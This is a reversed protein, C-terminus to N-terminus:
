PERFVRLRIFRVTEVPNGPLPRAIVTQGAGDDAVVTEEVVAPGSFWQVLDSSVEAVATLGSGPIRRYILGPRTDAGPAVGFVGFAGEAQMPQRGGFYELLNPVGDQDPDAEDGSIAPDLLQTASFHGFKWADVPRDAIRLTLRAPTATVFNAGPQLAVTVTEDGEVASDALPTLDFSVSTENAPITVAAPLASYDFGATASGGISLGVTLESGTAETRSVTLRTIRAAGAPTVPEASVQQDARIRVGPIGLGVADVIVYGNTGTNSVTVSGSTGAALPFDGLKVWKSGNLTQNITFTQSGGAYSVTVPVNTARNTDATWRLYLPFTGAFPVAPNFRVSRSGKGANGDNIYNAGYYGALITSSTWPGTVTAQLNDVIIEPYPTAPSGIADLIVPTVYLGYGDAGPQLGDPAFARFVADGQDLLAQWAPMHDILLLGEERAVDRYIQQYVPLAPRWAPDGEAHDIAPNMVQLIIECAPLATRLGSIMSKLNARAAAPSLQRADIADNNSFEIFVVDPAAAIVQDALHAAGWDSAMGSGGRNVLTVLGPYSRDLAAKMQVSWAGDATLETGYVLVKRAIGEDLKQVFLSKPSSVNRTRDLTVVPPSHISDGVARVPAAAILSSATAIAFIPLKLSPSLDRAIM